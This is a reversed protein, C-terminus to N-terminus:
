TPSFLAVIRPRDAGANFAEILAPLGITEISALAPQGTPTRRPGFALWGLYILAAAALGAAVASATRIGRSV